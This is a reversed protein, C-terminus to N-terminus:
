LTEAEILSMAEERKGEYILKAINEVFDNEEYRDLFEGDEDTVTIYGSNAIFEHLKAGTTWGVYFNQILRTGAVQLTHVLTSHHNFKVEETM